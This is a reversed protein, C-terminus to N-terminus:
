RGFSLAHLLVAKASSATVTVAAAHHLYPVPLNKEQARLTM